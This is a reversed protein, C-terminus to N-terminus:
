KGNNEAWSREMWSVVALVAGFTTLAFVVIGVFWAGTVSM